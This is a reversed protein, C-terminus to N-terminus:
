KSGRLCGADQLARTTMDTQTIFVMSAMIERIEPLEEYIHECGKPCKSNILMQLRFFQEQQEEHSMAQLSKIIKLRREKTMSM